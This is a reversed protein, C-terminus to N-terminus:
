IRRSLTLANHSDQQTESSNEAESGCTKEALKSEQSKGNVRVKGTSVNAFDRLKVNRKPFNPVENNQQENGKERSARFGM